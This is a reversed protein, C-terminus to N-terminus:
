LQVFKEPNKLHVEPRFVFEKRCHHCLIKEGNVAMHMPVAVVGECHPCILDVTDQIKCKNRLRKYMVIGGADMIHPLSKSPLVSVWGYGVLGM